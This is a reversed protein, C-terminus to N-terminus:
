MLAFDTTLKFELAIGSIVKPPVADESLFFYHSM